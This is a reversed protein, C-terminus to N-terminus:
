GAVVRGKLKWASWGVLFTLSSVLFLAQFGAFDGIYGLAISGAFVGLDISGTFLGVAKGRVEPPENRIALANISPFLLGHGCGTILGSLALVWSEVAFLLMLYGAGAVLLAPPIIREEGVQDALRSGLLRTLIAASSYSIYYVSIFALAKEKAYPAVFTGSTSIGVGFLLALLVVVVGKRKRMLGLFSESVAQPHRVYTDPLPLHAIWGVLGMLAASIFYANYGFHAIIAEAAAPGAAMGALGTVGFVGIGENLREIPIMDGIYTLAATVVIALGVGHILRVLLLPIYFSELRGNFLLYALPLVTMITSGLTFSKKRGVRDIMGSVWPRSLVASLVLAGMLIGVDAKSGGHAVVFLPFLFFAGFSSITFLYAFAM